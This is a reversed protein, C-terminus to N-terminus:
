SLVQSRFGTMFPGTENYRNGHEVLRFSTRGLSKEEPDLWMIGWERPISSLRFSGDSDSTEPDWCLEFRPFILDSGNDRFPTAVIDLCPPDGLVRISFPSFISSMTLGRIRRRHVLLLKDLHSLPKEALLFGDNGSWRLIPCPCDNEEAMTGIRFMLQGDLDHVLRTAVSQHGPIRGLDIPGHPIHPSLSPERDLFVDQEAVRVGQSRLNAESSGAHGGIRFDLSEETLNSTEPAHEFLNSLLDLGRVGVPVRAPLLRAGGLLHEYSYALASRDVIVPVAKLPTVVRERSHWEFRAVICEPNRSRAHLVTGALRDDRRHLSPSLLVLDYCEGAAYFSDLSDFVTLKGRSGSKVERSLTGNQHDCETADIERLLAVRMDASALDIAAQQPVIQMSGERVRIEQYAINAERLPRLLMRFSSAHDTSGFLRSELMEWGSPELEPLTLVHLCPCRYANALLRRKELLFPIHSGSEATMAMWDDLLM